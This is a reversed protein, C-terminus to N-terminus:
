DNRSLMLRIAAWLEKKAEPDKVLEEPKSTLTVSGSRFAAPLHQKIGEPRHGFLVMYGPLNELSNLESETLHLIQPAPKQKLATSLNLLLTRSEDSLNEWPETLVLGIQSSINYIEEGFIENFEM